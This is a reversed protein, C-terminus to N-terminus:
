DWDLSDKLNSISYDLIDVTIPMGYGVSLSWANITIPSANNGKVVTLVNLPLDPVVMDM